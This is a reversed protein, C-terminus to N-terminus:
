CNLRKMTRNIRYLRVCRLVCGAAAGLTAVGAMVQLFVNPAHLTAWMGCAYLFLWLLLSLLLSDCQEALSPELNKM